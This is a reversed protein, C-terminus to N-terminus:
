RAISDVFTPPLLPLMMGGAQQAAGFIEAHHQCEGMDALLSAVSRSVVELKGTDPEGDLLRLLELLQGAGGTEKYSFLVHKSM